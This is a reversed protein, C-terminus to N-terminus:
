FITALLGLGYFFLEKWNDLGAISIWLAALIIPTFIYITIDIGGLTALIIKNIKNM